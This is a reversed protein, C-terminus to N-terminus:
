KRYSKLTQSASWRRQRKRREDMAWGGGSEQGHQKLMYAELEVRNKTDEMITGTLTGFTWLEALKLLPLDAGTFIHAHQRGGHDEKLLVYRFPPLKQRNYSRKLRELFVAYSKFAEAQTVNENFALTIFMDGDTSSFNANVLKSLKRLSDAAYLREERKCHFLGKPQKIGRRKKIRQTEAAGANMTNEM